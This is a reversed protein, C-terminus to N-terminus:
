FDQCFIEISLLCVFIGAVGWNIEVINAGDLVGLASEASSFKKIIPLETVNFKLLIKDLRCGKRRKNPWSARNHCHEEVGRGGNATPQAHHRIQVRAAPPGCNLGGCGVLAVIVCFKHYLKDSGAFLIFFRPLIKQIPMRRVSIAPPIVQAGAWILNKSQLIM